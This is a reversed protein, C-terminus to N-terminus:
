DGNLPDLFWVSGSRHYTQNPFTKDVKGLGNIVTSL